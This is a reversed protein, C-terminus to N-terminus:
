DGCSQHKRWCLCFLRVVARLRALLEFQQFPKVIYDDAGWELGKVIDAEEKRITLIIVPVDSFQRIEKLVDFGSIDPLVLELIVADPAESEVMVIGKGGLNTSIIRAGHWRIELEQMASEVSDRDDEIILVKM